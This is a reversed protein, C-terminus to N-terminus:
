GNDSEFIRILSETINKGILGSKDYEPNFITISIGAIRGTKLLDKLFHEVQEFSLGGPLRYDVAPNIEDSLVDTDFHIWFGDTELRSIHQLIEGSIAATGQAEIAFLDFCKIGTQRIDQSGYKEAEEMDRQGIHVVHEDKVYPKLHHIDSLVLPGRGTVIALEMDAVQGTVSRGPEYFDAHADFFLLGYSGKAKLSPMIGILISCDGGLIFPFRNNDLTDSVVTSLGLSFDRISKTNLCNSDRDRKDLYLDNLTPINILSHQTGIKGALGCSLLGEALQEVGTPKLGLISPAAIIQIDYRGNKM